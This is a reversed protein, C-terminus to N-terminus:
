GSVPLPVGAPATPTVWHPDPDPRLFGDRLTRAYDMPLYGGHADAPSGKELSVYREPVPLEDLLARRGERLM